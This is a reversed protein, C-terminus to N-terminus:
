INIIEEKIEKLKSEPIWLSEKPDEGLLELQDPTFPGVIYPLAGIFNFESIVKSVAERILHSRSRYLGKKIIDDVKKLIEDPLRIQLTKM